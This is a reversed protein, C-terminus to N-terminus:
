HPLLPSNQCLWELLTWYLNQSAVVKKKTQGASDPRQQSHNDHYNCLETPPTSLWGNDQTPLTLDFTKIGLVCKAYSRYPESRYVSVLTMNEYIWDSILCRFFSNTPSSCVICKIEKLTYLNPIPTHPLSFHRCANYVRQIYTLLKIKSLGLIRKHLIYASPVERSGPGQVM